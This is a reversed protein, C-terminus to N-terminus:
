QLIKGVRQKSIGLAEAAATNSGLLDVIAQVIRRKEALAQENANQRHQEAERYQDILQDLTM